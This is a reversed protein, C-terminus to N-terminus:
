GYLVYSLPASLDGSLLASKSSQDIGSKGNETLLADITREVEYDQELLISKVKADSHTSRYNLPISHM